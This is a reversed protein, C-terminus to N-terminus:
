KTGAKTRTAPKSPSGFAREVITDVDATSLPAERGEFDWRLNARLRARATDKAYGLRSLLAARDELEARYMADRRATQARAVAPNRKPVMWDFPEGM